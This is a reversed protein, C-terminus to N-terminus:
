LFHCSIRGGLSPQYSPEPSWVPVPTPAEESADSDKGLQTVNSYEMFLQSAKGQKAKSQRTKSQKAKGQKAKSQRAKGRKAKSQKSSIHGHLTESCLKKKAGNVEECARCRFDTDTNSVHAIYAQGHTGRLEEGRTM